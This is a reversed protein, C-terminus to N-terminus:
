KKKAELKSVCKICYEATPKIALRDTDIMQKCEECIGYKGLKIRTLTKRVSVLSRNIATKTASVREHEVQEVADTDVANDDVRGTNNFPDEKELSKEVKKLRKEEQKLFRILPQLVKLPFTIVQGMKKGMSIKKKNKAM